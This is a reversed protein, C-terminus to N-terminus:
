MFTPNTWGQSKMRSDSLADFYGTRGGTLQSIYNKFQDRVAPTNAAAPTTFGNQIAWKEFIKNITAQGTEVGRKVGSGATTFHDRGHGLMYTMLDEDQLTEKEFNQINSPKLDKVTDRVAMEQRMSEIQDATFSNIGVGPLAGVVGKTAAFNVIDANHRALAVPDTPPPEIITNLRALRPDNRLLASGSLGAKKAIDLPRKMIKRFREDKIIDSDSTTTPIKHQNRFAKIIDQSDGRKITEIIAASAREGYLDGTMTRRMLDSSSYSALDKQAAEIGTRSQGYRRLADPVAWRTFRSGEAKQALWNAGERLKAHEQIRRGAAAAGKKGVYGAAKLPAKAVGKAGAITAGLFGGALGGVFGSVMSAGALGTKLSYAFGIILFIIPIIYPLIWGGTFNIGEMKKSIDSANIAMYGGLWVFFGGTIGIMCWSIFNDRWENWFKQTAPLVACAFAVPSLIVLIWIAFIRLLFLLAFLLYIFFIIINAVSQMICDACVDGLNATAGANAGWMHGANYTIKTQSSIAGCYSRPDEWIKKVITDDAGFRLLFYNTVINSADVVLGCIVPAFNIILAIIVFRILLRKTDYERLRLITTLAIFILVLVLIMNVFSLTVDFGAKIIPNSEPRTYSLVSGATVVKGLFRIMINALSGTAYAIAYFLMAPLYKFGMLLDGFISAFTPRASFLFIGSILAILVKRKNLFEKIM